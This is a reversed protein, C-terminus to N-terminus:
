GGLRQGGEGWREAILIVICADMRLGELISLRISLLEVM